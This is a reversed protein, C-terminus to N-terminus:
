LFTVTDILRPFQFQPGTEDLYLLLESHYKNTSKEKLTSKLDEGWNSKEMTAPIVIRTHRM